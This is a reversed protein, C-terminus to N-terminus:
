PLDVMAFTNGRQGELEAIAAQYKRIGWAFWDRNPTAGGFNAKNIFSASVDMAMKGAVLDAFPQEHAEKLTSMVFRVIDDNTAAELLPPWFTVTAENSAITVTNDAVYIGRIGDIVFEQGKFVSGSSQLGDIVMSTSGAAYGAVLDVAGLVDTLQSLKHRLAFDVWVEDRATSEQTDDPQQDVKLRVVGNPLEEWQPLRPPDQLIPYEIRDIYLYDLVRTGLTNDPQQPSKLSFQKASTTDENYIRYNEDGDPFIDASLTLQSTSVFATVKAWARTDPNYVWKDVDGALFQSETTDVLANATDANATGRRSELTFEARYIHPQIKSYELLGATIGRQIYADTFIANSEDYLTSSILDVMTANSQVM